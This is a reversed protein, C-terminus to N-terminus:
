LLSSIIEIEKEIGKELTCFKATKYGEEGIKKAKEKNELIELAREALSEEDYPDITYGNEGERILESIGARRSVIVPKKYLWGEVIALGFGEFISPLVVLDSRQYAACLMKQDLYGTIIVDNELNLEKALEILTNKVVEAKSIGLGQKSSSFSGNGVFVAKAKIKKKIRKLAKIVLQHNKTYDLRAVMLIVKDEDEIGFRRCFEVVDESRPKPYDQPNVYPYSIYARGKYGIKRLNEMYKLCSLIIADYSELFDLLNNKWQDPILEECFPIHWRFIKPKLTQLMKGISLQQFDHIYFLSFDLEKDLKMIRESVIRNYYIFDAFEEKWLNELIKEKSELSHFMKWLEEKIYGYNKMREEPILVNSFIIKKWTVYEPANTNLSVWYAEDFYGREILANVLPLVMRVVGGTSFTYDLDEHFFSIDVKTFIRGKYNLFRIPPTQTNILIRNM